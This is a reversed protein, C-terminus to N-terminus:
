EWDSIKYHIAQPFLPSVWSKVTRGDIEVRIKSGLLRQGQGKAQLIHTM